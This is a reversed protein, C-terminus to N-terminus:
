SKRLVMSLWKWAKRFALFSTVLAMLLPVLSVLTTLIAGMEVKRMQQSLSVKIPAKHFFITGDENYIDFSSAVIYENDDTILGINERPLIKSGTSWNSEGEKYTYMMAGSQFNIVGREMYNVIYENDIPDKPMILKYRKTQSNYVILYHTSSFDEVIDPWPPLTITSAKVSFSSFLLLVSLFASLVVFKRKM